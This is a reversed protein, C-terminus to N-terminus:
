AAEPLKEGPLHGRDWDQPITLPSHNEIYTIFAEDCVGPESLVPLEALMQYEDGGTLIYNSSVLPYLTQTDTLDLPTGDDLVISTIRQGVPKTPDYTFHFGSAHLFKGQASEEHNISGDEMLVIGSVGNELVDKLIKPSVEKVMLSNGFPLVSIVDGLTVVGPQLDARIDGGNVVALPVDAAERYADAILSGLPMEQTRVGPARESSFFTETTGVPENLTESLASTLDQIMVSVVPDPEVEQAQEYSILSASKSVLEGNELQLTVRGLNNEYSGTQAILVGNELLGTELVTHSHGDILVDIEPVAQAVDVANPVGAPVVGLHSLAVIVQVEQEELSAVMEKATEIVDEFSLDEVYAPMTATATQQTCLGFVGIKVGDIELIVSDELLREGDKSVNSALLPFEAHQELELLHEWGYNFDHNGVEMADFGVANMLVIADAGKSLTAVPLGHLADGADLLIANDTNKYIAAIRDLGIVSEEDNVFRGHQDNTHFITITTVQMEKEEVSNEKPPTTCSVLLLLSLLVAIIKYIRNTTNM